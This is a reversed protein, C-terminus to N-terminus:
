SVRYKDLTNQVFCVVDHFTLEPNANAEKVKFAVEIGNMSWTPLQKSHHATLYKHVEAWNPTTVEKLETIPLATNHHKSWSKKIRTLPGPNRDDYELALLVKLANMGAQPHVIPALDKCLFESLGESQTSNLQYIPPEHCIVVPSEGLKKLLLENLNGTENPWARKMADYFRAHWEQRGQPWGQGADSTVSVVHFTFGSDKQLFRQIRHVFWAIRQEKRGRLVFVGHTPKMCAALFEGWQTERDLHINTSLEPLETLQPLEIGTPRASQLAYGEKLSKVDARIQDLTSLQLWNTLTQDSAAKARFIEVSKPILHEQLFAREVGTHATLLTQLATNVQGDLDLKPDYLVRVQRGPQVRVLAELHAFVAVNGGPQISQFEAKLTPLAERLSEVALAQATLAPHPPTRAMWRWLAGLGDTAWNGGIAKAAEAAIGAQGSAAALAIMGVGAILKLAELAKDRTDM